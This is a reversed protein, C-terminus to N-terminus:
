IVINVTWKLVGRVSLICLLIVRCFLVICSTCVADLCVVPKPDLLWLSDFLKLKEWVAVVM